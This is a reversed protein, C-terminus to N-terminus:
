QVQLSLRSSPEGVTEGKNDVARVRVQYYGKGRFL